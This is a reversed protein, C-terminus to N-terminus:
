KLTIFIADKGPTFEAPVIEVGEEDYMVRGKQAAKYAEKAAEEVAKLQAKATAYEQVKDFSWRGATSRLELVAGFAEAKSKPYDLIEQYAAEEIQKKAAALEKEVRKLEVLVELASKNGEEVAQVNASIAEIAKM